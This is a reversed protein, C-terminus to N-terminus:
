PSMSPRPTESRGSRSPFLRRLRDRETATTAIKRRRRLAIVAPEDLVVGTGPRCVRTNATGLDVYLDASARGRRLDYPMERSSFRRRRPATLAQLVAFFKGGEVM